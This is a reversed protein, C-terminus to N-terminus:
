ESRLFYMYVLVALVLVAGGILPLIKDLTVTDSTLIEQMYPTGFFAWIGLFIIISVVSRISRRFLEYIIVAVLPVMFWPNTFLGQYDISNIQEPVKTDHIFRFLPALIEGIKTLIGSM